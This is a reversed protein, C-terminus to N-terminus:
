KYQIIEEARWFRHNSKVFDLNMQLFAHIYLQLKFIRIGISFSCNEKYNKFLAPQMM